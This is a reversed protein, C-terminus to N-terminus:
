LFPLSWETPGFGSSVERTRKNFVSPPTVWYHQVVTPPECILLSGFEDALLRDLLRGNDDPTPPESLLFPPELLSAVESLAVYCRVNPRPGPYASFPQRRQLGLQVASLGLQALVFNQM